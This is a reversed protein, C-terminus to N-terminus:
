DFEGWSSLRRTGDHSGVAMYRRENSYSIYSIWVFGEKIVYSDYYVVEGESYSSVIEGSISPKTRVNIAPVTVTFKGNEDVRTWDENSDYSPRIFGALCTDDRSMIRALGGQEPTGDVNQEISTILGNNVEIVIGIHGYKDWSGWHWIAIDGPAINTDGKYYRKWGSPISNTLYDIANGYIQFNAFTKMYAMILDVCQAGYIGDMDIWKYVNNKAWNVMIQQSAM